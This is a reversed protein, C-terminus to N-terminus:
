RVHLSVAPVQSWWDELNVYQLWPREYSSESMDMLLNAEVESCRAMRAIALLENWAAVVNVAATAAALVSGVADAAIAVM